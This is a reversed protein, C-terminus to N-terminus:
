WCPGCSRRSRSAAAGVFTALAAWNLVVPRDVFDLARALAVTAETRHDRAAFDLLARDARRLTSREHLYAVVWGAVSLALGCLLAV